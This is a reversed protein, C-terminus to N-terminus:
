LSGLPNLLLALNILILYVFSHSYLIKATFQGSHSFSKWTHIFFWGGTILAVFLYLPGCLKLFYPLLGIGWSLFSAWRLSFKMWYEGKSLPLVVFGARAMDKRFMWGLTILHPWQWLWLLTFLTWAGPAFSDSAAVWGIVPPLAGAIAGPLNCWWSIKKLPTYIFLYLSWAVLSLAAAKWSVATLALVGTLTFLCGLSLAFIPTMRGSPIPRLRTREMRADEKREIVQNLAGSGACVFSTGLVALLFSPETPHGKAVIYGVASTFGVFLSIGAKGLVLLDWLWLPRRNAKM